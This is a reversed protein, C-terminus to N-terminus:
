TGARWSRPADAGDAVAVASAYELVNTILTIKLHHADHEGLDSKLQRLNNPKPPDYQAALKNM